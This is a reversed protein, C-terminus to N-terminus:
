APGRGVEEKMRAIAAAGFKEAYPAWEWWDLMARARFDSWAHPTRELLLVGDTAIEFRLLPPAEDMTVLDIQRGAARELDALLRDLEHPDIPGARLALDIDSDSGADGRAHSGFLVALQVEPAAQLISRLIQSVTVPILNGRM